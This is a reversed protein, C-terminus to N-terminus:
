LIINAVKEVLGEPLVLKAGDTFNLRQKSLLM